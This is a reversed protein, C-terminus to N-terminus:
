RQMQTKCSTNETDPLSRKIMFPSECNGSDRAACFVSTYQLILVGAANTLKLNCWIDM